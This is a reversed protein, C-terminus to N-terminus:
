SWFMNQNNQKLKQLVVTEWKVTHITAELNIAVLVSESVQTYGIILFKEPCLTKKKENLKLHQYINKTTNPWSVDLIARIPTTEKEQFSISNWVEVQEAEFTLSSTSCQNNNSFHLSICFIKIIQVLLPRFM